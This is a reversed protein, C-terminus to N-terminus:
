SSLSVLSDRSQGIEGMAPIVAPMVTSQPRLFSSMALVESIRGDEWGQKRYKATLYRAALQNAIEIFPSERELQSLTRSSAAPSAKSMEELRQSHFGNQVGTRLRIPSSEEALHLAQNQDVLAGDGQGVVSEM